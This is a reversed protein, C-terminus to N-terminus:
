ASSCSKVLYAFTVGSCVRLDRPAAGSFAFTKWLSAYVTLRRAGPYAEEGFTVFFGNESAVSMDPNATMRAPGM